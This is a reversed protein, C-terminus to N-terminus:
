NDFFNQYHLKIKPTTSLDELKAVQATIQRPLFLALSTWIYLFPLYPMALARGLYGLLLM